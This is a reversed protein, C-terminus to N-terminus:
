GDDCQWHVQGVLRDSSNVPIQAAVFEMKVLDLDDVERYTKHQRSLEHARDHLARKQQAIDGATGKDRLEEIYNILSNTFSMHQETDEITRQIQKLRHKRRTELELILTRKESDIAMKLQEVRACIEKEIDDLASSFDKKHQEQANLKERCRFVTDVLQQIDLTMEQRFEGVVKSVDSCEHLKHEEVFCMFCIAAQCDFCYLRLAEDPHKDCKSAAKERVAARMVDDDDIEVLRHGQFLTMRGHISVCDECVKQRCQVCFKVAQKRRSVNAENCGECYGSPTAAIDKLQEIFFNKPLCELGKEPVM